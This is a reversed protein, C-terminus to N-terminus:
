SYHRRWYDQHLLLSSISMHSVSNKRPGDYVFYQSAYGWFLILARTLSSAVDWPYFTKSIATWSTKLFHEHVMVKEIEM